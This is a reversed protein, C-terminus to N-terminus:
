TIQGFDRGWCFISDPNLGLHGGICVSQSCVPLFELGRQRDSAGLLRPWLDSAHEGIGQSWSDWCGLGGNRWAPAGERWLGGAAWEGGEHEWVERMGLSERKGSWKFYRHPQTQAGLKCGEHWFTTPGSRIFCLISRDVWTHSEQLIIHMKQHPSPPKFIESPVPGPRAPVRRQIPGGGLHEM